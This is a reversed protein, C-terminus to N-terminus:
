NSLKKSKEVLDIYNDINPNIFRRQEKNPPLNFGGKQYFIPVLTINIGANKAASVLREGM